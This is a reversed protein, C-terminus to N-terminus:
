KRKKTSTNRKYDGKSSKDRDRDRDDGKDKDKDERISPDFPRPRSALIQLLEVQTSGAEGILEEPVAFVISSLLEDTVPEQHERFVRSLAAIAELRMRSNIQLKLRLRAAEMLLEQTAM